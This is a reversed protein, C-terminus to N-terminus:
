CRRHELWAGVGERPLSLRLLRIKSNVQEIKSLHATWVGQQRSDEATRIMHPISDKVTAMSRTQFPFSSQVTRLPITTKFFTSHTFAPRIVNPFSMIENNSYTIKLQDLVLLKTEHIRINWFNQPRALYSSSKSVYFPENIRRLLRPPAQGWKNNTPAVGNRLRSTTSKVIPANM